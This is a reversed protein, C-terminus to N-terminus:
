GGCHWRHLSARALIGADGLLSQGRVYEADIEWESDFNINARSRIWWLGLLGPRIDWRRWQMRDRPSMEIRNLPRPGIWSLEGRLINVLAALHHLGLRRPLSLPGDSPLDFSLLDFPEAWRGLLTRRKLNGKCALLLAAILPSLAILLLFASVADIGRKATRTFALVTRRRLVILRRRADQAPKGGSMLRRELVEVERQRATGLREGGVRM